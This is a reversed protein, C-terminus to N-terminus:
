MLCNALVLQAREDGALNYIIKCGRTSVACVAISQTDREGTMDAKMENGGIRMMGIQRDECDEDRRSRIIVM